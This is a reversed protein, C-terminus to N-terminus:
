QTEIPEVSISTPEAWTEQATQEQPEMAPEYPMTAQPGFLDCTMPAPPATQKYSKIRVGVGGAAMYSKASDDGSLRDAPVPRPPQHESGFDLPIQTFNSM